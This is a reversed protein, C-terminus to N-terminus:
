NPKSGRSLTLLIDKLEGFNCTRKKWKLTLTHWWPQSTTESVKFKTMIPFKYDELVTVGGMTACHSACKIVGQNYPTTLLSCLETNLSACEIRSRYNYKIHMSSRWCCRILWVTTTLARPRSRFSYRKIPKCPSFCLREGHPRPANCGATVTQLLM